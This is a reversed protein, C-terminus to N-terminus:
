DFKRCSTLLGVFDGFTEAVRRPKRDEDVYVVAPELGSVVDRYDLMVADHGGSPTAGFVVGIDPYAWERILYKSGLDSDLGRDGGVGYLASIAIHDPAWSNEFEVGVCQNRLTGGNQVRLVDLLSEPLEYGLRSFSEEILSETLDGCLYHADDTFLDEPVAKM